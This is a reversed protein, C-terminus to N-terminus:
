KAVPPVPAQVGQQQQQRLKQMVQPNNMMQKVKVISIVSDVFLYLSVLIMLTGIALGANKLLGAEKNAKACVIYGAGMALMILGFAIAMMGM